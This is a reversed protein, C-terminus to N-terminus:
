NKTQKKRNFINKFKIFAMSTDHRFFILNFCLVIVVSVIGTVIAKFGWQYYNDPVSINLLRLIFVITACEAFSLLCRKYTISWHRHVINKRMYRSFVITKYITAALTGVAVGVLGFHFVFIISLVINLIPEVMVANRTQKYHGAAQVVLQYPLRIGNFFQALIMVYAFMPRIYNVDHVGKTYLGVFDLILVASCTYIVTSFTYMVIEMASVNDRLIDYEKKAIMNGYAAEQGGSFATIVRRLGRTVMNYVSYVSVELMNSFITLVMVDTNNMVFVAVQHWFADWRQSISQTDPEITKDIKYKKRVYIGLVIPYIVFVISSAGKVAHISAGNLILITAFLTNLIYCVIKMVSSIWVKQDAQLVILYTIGFFSEAFTHAGIILFLTFTFFWSFERKVLVPYIGAFLVILTALLLGIRKMYKDTANVIASLKRTDHEALPKYLAARTAGGLGSRLLVACGLFQTISATLGNYKSGFVSLILRPLIFGCIVSVLEELLFFVTNIAAKRGRM